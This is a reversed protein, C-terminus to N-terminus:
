NFLDFAFTNSFHLYGPFSFSLMLSLIFRDSGLDNTSEPTLQPCFLPPVSDVTKDIPPSETSSHLGNNGPPFAPYIENERIVIQLLYKPVLAKHARM